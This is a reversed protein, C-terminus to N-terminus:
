GLERMRKVKAIAFHKRSLGPRELAKYMVGMLINASIHEWDEELIAFLYKYAEKYNGHQLNMAGMILNMKTDLGVIGIYKNM